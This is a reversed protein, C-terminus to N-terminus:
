EELQDVQSDLISQAFKEHKAILSVLQRNDSKRASQNARGLLDISPEMLSSDKGLISFKVLAYGLADLSAADNSEACLELLEEALIRLSDGQSSIWAQKDDDQPLKICRAIGYLLTSLAKERLNSDPILLRDFEELFEEFVREALSNYNEFPFDEHIEGLREVWEIVVGGRLIHWVTRLTGDVIQLHNQTIGELAGIGERYKGRAVCADALMACTFLRLPPVSHSGQLKLWSEFFKKAERFDGLFYFGLASLWLHQDNHSEASNDSASELLQVAREPLQPSQTLLLNFLDNVEHGHREGLFPVLLECLDLFNTVTAVIVSPTRERQIGVKSSSGEAYGMPFRTLIDDIKRLIEGAVYQRQELFQKPQQTSLLARVISVLLKEDPNHLRKWHSQKNLGQLGFAVRVNGWKLGAEEYERFLQDQLEPSTPEGKLCEVLFEINARRQALHVRHDQSQNAALYYGIEAFYEWSRASSFSGRGEDLYGYETAPFNGPHYGMVQFMSASRTAFLLRRRSSFLHPHLQELYSLAVSDIENQRKADPRESVMHRRWYDWNDLAPDCKRVLDPDFDQLTKIRRPNAASGLVLSRLTELFELTEEQINLFVSPLYKEFVTRLLRLLRDSPKFDILEEDSAESLQYLSRDEKGAKRLEGLLESYRAALSQSKERFRYTQTGERLNDLYNRMEWSYPPLLILVCPLKYFLYYLGSYHLSSTDRRYGVPVSAQSPLVKSAFAFIESWDVAIVPASSTHNINPQSAWIERLDSDVVTLIARARRALQLRSM